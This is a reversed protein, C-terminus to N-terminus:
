TKCCDKPNGLLYTCPAVQRSYLLKVLQMPDVGTHSVDVKNIHIIVHDTDDALGKGEVPIHVM